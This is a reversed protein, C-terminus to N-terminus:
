LIKKFNLIIKRRIHKKRKHAPSLELHQSYIFCLIFHLDAEFSNVHLYLSVSMLVYFLHWDFYCLPIFHPFLKEMNQYPSLFHKKGICLYKFFSNSFSHLPHSTMIRKPLPFTELCVRSPPITMTDPVINVYQVLYMTSPVINIEVGTPKQPIPRPTQLSVQSKVTLVIFLKQNTQIGCNLFKLM